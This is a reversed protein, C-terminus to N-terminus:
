FINIGSCFNFAVAVAIGLLPVDVYDLARTLGFIHIYM